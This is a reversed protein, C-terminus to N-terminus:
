FEILNDDVARLARGLLILAVGGLFVGAHILNETVSGQDFRRPKKAM